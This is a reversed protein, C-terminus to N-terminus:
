DELQEITSRKPKAIYKKRFQWYLDEYKTEIDDAM